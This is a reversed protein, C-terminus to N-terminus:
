EESQPEGWRSRAIEKLQLNDGAEYWPGDRAFREVTVHARKCKLRKFPAVGRHVQIVEGSESAFAVDIPAKMGVTHVDNCPVLLLEGSFGRRGFLGRLRDAVSCAVITNMTSHVESGREYRGRGAHGDGIGM